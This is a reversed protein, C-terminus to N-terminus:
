RSPTLEMSYNADLHKLYLSFLQAQTSINLKEYANKRHTKVTALSIGLQAAISESSYGRLVFELVQRERVSIKGEGFAAPGASSTRQESLDDSARNRRWYSGFCATLLALEDEIAILDADSFDGNSRYRYLAFEVTEDPGLQIAVDIESLGEPWDRTVYGIEENSTVKIRYDNYFESQFFIDPALDRIRYVGSALGNRQAQFFPNLAYTKQLYERIGQKAKGGVFNDFVYIPALERRHVFITAADFAVREGLHSVLAEPFDSRDIATVLRAARDNMDRM